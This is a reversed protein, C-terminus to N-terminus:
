LYLIVSHPIVSAKVKLRQGVEFRIPKDMLGLPGIHWHKLTGELYEQSIVNLLIPHISRPEPLCPSCAVPLFVTGQM